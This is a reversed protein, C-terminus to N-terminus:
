RITRRKVPKYLSAMERQNASQVGVIEFFCDFRISWGVLMEAIAHRVSLIEDPSDFRIM